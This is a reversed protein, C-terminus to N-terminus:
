VDTREKKVAIPSPAETETKMVLGQEADSAHVVTLHAGQVMLECGATLEVATGLVLQRRPAVVRVGNSGYNLLWLSFRRPHKLHPQQRRAADEADSGEEEEEEDSEAKVTEEDGRTTGPEAAYSPRWVLSFHHAAVRAAEAATTFAELRVDIDVTGGRTCQLGEQRGFTTCLKALPVVKQPATMAASAADSRRLVLALGGAAPPPPGWGLDERPAVDKPVPPAALPSTINVSAPPVVYDTQAGQSCLSRWPQSYLTALADLTQVRKEVNTERGSIFVGVQEPADVERSWPDPSPQLGATSPAADVERRRKQSDAKTAALARAEATRDADTNIEKLKMWAALNIFQNSMLCAGEVESLGAAAIFRAIEEVMTAASFFGSTLVEPTLGAALLRNSSVLHALTVKTEAPAEGAGPAMAVAAASAGEAGQLNLGDAISWFSANVDVADAVKDWVKVPPSGQPVKPLLEPFLYFPPEYFVSRKLQISCDGYISLPTEGSGDATPSASGDEGKSM